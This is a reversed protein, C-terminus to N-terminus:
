EVFRGSVRSRLSVKRSSHDKLVIAGREFLEPTVPVSASGRLFSEKEGSRLNDSDLYHREVTEPVEFVLDFDGRREDRSSPRGSRRTRGSPSPCASITPM